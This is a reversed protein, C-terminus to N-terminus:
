AENGCLHHDTSSIYVLRGYLPGLYFFYMSFLLSLILLLLLIIALLRNMPVGEINWSLYTFPSLRHSHGGAMRAFM